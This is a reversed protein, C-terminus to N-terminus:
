EMVIKERGPEKGKAFEDLIGRIMEKVGGIFASKSNLLYFM